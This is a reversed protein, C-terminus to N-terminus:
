GFYRRCQEVEGKMIELTEQMRNLIAYGRSQKKLEELMQQYKELM